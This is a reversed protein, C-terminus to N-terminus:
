KITKKAAMKLALDLAAYKDEKSIRWVHMKFTHWDLPLCKGRCDWVHNAFTTMRLEANDMQM